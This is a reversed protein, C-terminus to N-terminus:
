ENLQAICKDIDRVLQTIIARKQTAIEKSPAISRAMVLYDNNRELQENNKKLSIVEAQLSEITKVLQKNEQELAHYREVLVGCKNVLRELTNHLDTAM